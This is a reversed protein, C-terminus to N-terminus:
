FWPSQPSYSCQESLENIQDGKIGDLRDGYRLEVMRTISIENRIIFYMYSYIIHIHIIQM